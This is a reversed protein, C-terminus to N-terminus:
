WLRWVFGFGRRERWSRGMDCAENEKDAAAAVKRSLVIPEKRESLRRKTERPCRVGMEEGKLRSRRKARKGVMVLECGGGGEEEEVAAEEGPYAEETTRGGGEESQGDDRGNSFRDTSSEQRKAVSCTM